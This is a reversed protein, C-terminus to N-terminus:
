GPAVRNMRASSPLRSRALLASFGQGEPRGAESKSLGELIPLLALMLRPAWKFGECGGDRIVSAMANMLKYAPGDGAFACANVARVDITFSEKGGNM